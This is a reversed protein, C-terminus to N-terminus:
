SPGHRQIRDLLDALERPATVMSDHGTDIEFWDWGSERRVWERSAALPAYVPAVSAIYAAPIHNGLPRRLKLVSDYTSAPQPTIRRKLWAALPHDEPVGFAGLSTHPLVLGAGETLILHRRAAVIDADMQSFASEGDQLILADLFVLQRIRDRCSEAVGCLAPGSFSHGVLIVDELEESELHMALDRVWLELTISATILHSREGLGTLTPTSVEHGLERLRASVYKWCWAGHSGGHVLVFHAPHRRRRDEGNVM